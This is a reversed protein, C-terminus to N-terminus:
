YEKQLMGVIQDQELHCNIWEGDLRAQHHEYFEISPKNWDLVQWMMGTCQQAISEEMVRFFLKKGIGQARYSETVLLDEMWLRKGKWTSYRFYYVAIGVILGNSEAVLSGYVPHAGFGDELMQAVTTEVEHEAHEYIALERILELIRPVDDPTGHRLILESHM